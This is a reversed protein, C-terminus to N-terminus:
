KTLYNNFCVIWSQKDFITLKEYYIIQKVINETDFQSMQPMFILYLILSLIM